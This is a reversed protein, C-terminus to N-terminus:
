EVLSKSAIEYVDKSIAETQLIRTLAAKMFSQRVANYKRWRTLPSLLRAAIQPNLADILLIQDALFQYGSGSQDHFHIHSNNAFVGIVARIINPNTMDFAPHNLLKKIAEIDYTSSSSQLSFWQEIVLVDKQWKQYFEALLAEIKSRDNSYNVLASLAAKTDSMNLASNYQNICLATVADTKLMMLYHLCTNKLAREASVKGDYYATNSSDLSSYVALLEHQLKEAITTRVQQHVCHIADVDIVEALESLYTESPLALMKAIFACDANSLLAENLLQRYAEILLASTVIPQQQQYAAILEDFMMVALRQAADWRNFGDSDHRMLFLLEDTRYAYHLKVPASFHRLLSPIPKNKINNFEFTQTAQTLELVTEELLSEGQANLLGTKVPIHFPLKESQKPTPACTQTITLTYRQDTEDYSDTVTLV